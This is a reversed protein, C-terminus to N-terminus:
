LLKSRRRIKNGEGDKYVRYLLRGQTELQNNQGSKIAILEKVIRDDSLSAQVTKGGSFDIKRLIKDDIKNHQIMDLLKMSRSTADATIVSEGKSLKADISDSTGTGPGNLNIVGKAFRPKNKNIESLQTVGQAAVIAAQAIAVYINPATSFARMIGAATDIIVANRRAEWEKEAISRRLKATDREEQKRILAKARENDGALSLQKDYFEETRDLKFRLSEIEADNVGKIFSATDAFGQSLIDRWNDKWWDKFEQMKDKNEGNRGFLIDGMDIPTEGAEEKARNIGAVIENYAGDQIKDMEGDSIKFDFEIENKNSDEEIKKKVRLYEEHTMNDDFHFKPAIIPKVQSVETLKKITEDIATPLSNLYIDIMMNIQEMERERQQNRISAQYNGGSIDIDSLEEMSDRLRNFQENLDRIRDETKKAFLERAKDVNGFAKALQQFDETEAALTKGELEEFEQKTSKLLDNAAELAKSLLSVAEFLVGENGKGITNLLQEWADSLNSTQGALTRSIAETSGAVGNLQGLAVVADLVGRETRAVEQNVGRFALTVKNGTTEAKIGIEKWREPNNIDLIAEVVQNYDKGLTASLDAIARMEKLTPEVGRNALKIFSNTLENVGFPTSKAFEVIRGLAILAQSRSGLTNTLVAEFKQFEGRVKIVEKTFDLVQKTIIAFSVTKLLGNFGQFAKQGEEGAKKFEKGANTASKRLDDTTKQAAESAAKAKQITQTDIQYNIRINITREAV